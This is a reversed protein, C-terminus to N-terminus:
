SIPAAIDISIIKQMEGGPRVIFCDVRGTAKNEHDFETLNVHFPKRANAGKNQLIDMLEHWDGILQGLDACSQRSCTALWKNM